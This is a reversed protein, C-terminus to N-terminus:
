QVKEVLSASSRAVNSDGFYTATIKTSGIPLAATTFMAKHSSNLQVTGLISTGAAFTVPGTVLVTPSTITATFIVPQGHISPNSSSTITAVSRTQNVIQILPMSTSSGNSTDGKYVATMSYIQANLSSKTIRAVGNVLPVIAFTNTQGNLSYMFALNGTPVAQGHSTVRATFTVAQGYISPSLSSSLITSTPFPGDNLLIGVNNSFYNTVILDPRTDGNLDAVAVFMPTNGGSAYNVAQRFTGDGNGLLVGILGPNPSSCNQVWGYPCLNTVVMDPKGDGNVDAVAVSFPTQGGSPYTKFQGFTGDGNGLSVSLTGYSACNSGGCISAVILDAKGDGNVDRLLVQNVGPAGPTSLYHVAFLRFTGDGNGLLVSYGVGHLSVLDPTGDGNVDGVAVSGDGLGSYITIPRFTGDGNGLMVGPGAGTMIVVDLDGDFNLDVVAVSVAGPAGADYLRPTQFTGNGNGLFIAVVGHSGDPNPCNGPNSANGCNTVVLDANGDRNVDAIAVSTAFGAGSGFSESPNSSGDGIGLFVTVSGQNEPGFIQTVVLDPRGDNNVDGVAVSNPSSGVPLTQVPLFLSVANSFIPLVLSLCLLFLFSFRSFVYKYSIMQAESKRSLVQVAFRHHRRLLSVM